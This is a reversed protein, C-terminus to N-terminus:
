RFTTRVPTDSVRRVPSLRVLTPLLPSLVPPVGIGVVPWCLMDGVIETFVVERLSKQFVRAWVTVASTPLAGPRSTTALGWAPRSTTRAPGLVRCVTLRKRRSVWALTSRSTTISALIRSTSRM